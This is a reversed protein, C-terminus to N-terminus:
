NSFFPCIIGSDHNLKKKESTVNASSFKRGCDFSICSRKQFANMNMFPVYSLCTSWSQFEFRSSFSCWFIIPLIIMYIGKSKKRWKSALRIKPIAMQVDAINLIITSFSFEVVRLSRSIKLYYSTGFQFM